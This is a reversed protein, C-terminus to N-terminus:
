VTRHSWTLELVKWLIMWTQQQTKIVTYCRRKGLEAGKGERGERRKERRERGGRGEGERGNGKRKKGERRRGKGSTIRFVLSM